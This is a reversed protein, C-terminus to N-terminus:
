LKFGIKIGKLSTPTLWGSNWSGRSWSRWGEARELLRGVGSAWRPFAKAQPKQLGSEYAQVLPILEKAHTDAFQPGMFIHVLVLIVLSSIERFLVIPTGTQAWKRFHAQAIPKCHAKWVELRLPDTLTDRLVPMTDHIWNERLAVATM